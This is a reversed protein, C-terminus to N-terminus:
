LGEGAFMLKMHKAAIKLGGEQWTIEGDEDADKGKYIYGALKSIQMTLGAAKKRSKQELIQAGLIAIEEAWAVANKTATTVHPTHARVNGSADASAAALNIHTIAGNAAKIMGFGMGPGIAELKTNIAHLVHRTHTKMWKLDGPRRSALNAHQSAIKAEFIATTLLGSGDPTNSFANSVHAMHSHAVSEQAIVTQIAGGMAIVSGLVLGCIFRM